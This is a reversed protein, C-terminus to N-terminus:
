QIDIGSTCRSFTKTVFGIRGVIMFEGGGKWKDPRGIMDGQNDIETIRLVMVGPLDGAERYTKRQSLILEGREVMGRLEARLERRDDGKIGLARAIDKRTMQDPRERVAILIDNNMSTSM